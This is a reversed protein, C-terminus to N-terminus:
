VTTFNKNPTITGTLSSINIDSGVEEGDVFIRAIDSSLNGTFVVHHWNGDNYGTGQSASVQNKGDNLCYGIAGGPFFM